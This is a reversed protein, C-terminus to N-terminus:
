KAGSLPGNKQVTCEHHQRSDNWLERRPQGAPCSSRMNAESTHSTVRPPNPPRAFDRLEGQQAAREDM